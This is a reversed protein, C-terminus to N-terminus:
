LSAELGDYLYVLVMKHDPIPLTRVISKRSRIEPYFRNEKNLSRRARQSRVAAQARILAQM